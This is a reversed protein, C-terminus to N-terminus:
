SPARSESRSYALGVRPRETLSLQALHDHLRDPTKGGHCSGGGVFRTTRSGGGSHWIRFPQQPDKTRSLPHSYLCYCLTKRCHAPFLIAYNKYYVYFLGYTQKTKNIRVVM